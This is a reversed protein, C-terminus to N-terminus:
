VMAVARGAAAGTGVAASERWGRKQVGREALAAGVGAGVIAGIITGIIPVVFSGAIAGVIGGVVAGIAGSRAGGTRKAGAASAFLEVIEGIAALGAAAAVVWWSMLEPQWLTCGAAVLVALWTGPLTVITLVIGVISALTVLSAALYIM